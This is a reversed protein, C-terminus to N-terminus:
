RPLHAALFDLQAPVRSRWYGADHFGSSFAAEAGIANALAEANTRFPDDSGCDIRVARRRLADAQRFLDHRAFDNADDFAGPSAQGFRRWVAPSAAATAIVDDRESAALLAGYGGMSWGLLGVPAEGISRRIVPLLEDFIMAQPDRGDAREHWYASEGGDVSAVAWPLGAAAVFRHVGITDFAYSHTNGRGHLCLLVATTRGDPVSISWGVRGRMADSRLQHTQVDVHVDPADLDPGRVVGVVHLWRRGRESEGAALAAAGATAIAGAGLAVRRTVPSM